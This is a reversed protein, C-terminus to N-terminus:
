SIPANWFLNKHMMLLIQTLVRWYNSNIKKAISVLAGTVLNRM